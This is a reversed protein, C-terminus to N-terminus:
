GAAEQEALPVIGAPTVKFTRDRRILYLVAGAALVYVVINLVFATNGISDPAYDPTLFTGIDFLGHMVM